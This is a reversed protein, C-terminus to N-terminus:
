LYSSKAASEFSTIWVFNFLSELFNVGIQRLKIFCYKYINSLFLSTFPSFNRRPDKRNHPSQKTYGYTGIKRGPQVM